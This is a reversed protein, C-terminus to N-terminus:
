HVERPERHGFRKRGAHPNEHIVPQIDRQGGAGRSHV